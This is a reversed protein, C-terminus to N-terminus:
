NLLVIFLIVLDGELKVPMPGPNTRNGLKGPGGKSKNQGSKGEAEKGM